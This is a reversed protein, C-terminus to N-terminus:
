HFARSVAKLGDPRRGPMGTRLSVGRSCLDISVAIRSSPAVDVPLLHPSLTQLVSIRCGPLMQSLLARFSLLTFLGRLFTPGAGLLAKLCLSAMTGCIGMSDTVFIGNNVVSVTISTISTNIITMHRM